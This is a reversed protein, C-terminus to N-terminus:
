NAPPPPPINPFFERSKEQEFEVEFGGLWGAILNYLWAGVVGCLFGMAAYMIPAFFIMGLGFMMPMAASRGGGGAIAAMTTFLAFLPVILVSMAGYLVGLVKGAQLPAIRKLRLKM